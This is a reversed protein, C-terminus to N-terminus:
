RCSRGRGKPVDAVPDKPGQLVQGHLLDITARLDQHEGFRSTSRSSRPDRLGGPAARARRDFDANERDLRGVVVIRPTEANELESWVTQTGWRARRRLCRRLRDRRRRCPPRCTPGGAFDAFGPTDILNIKTGEHTFSALAMNITIHRKQEEPDPTWSAPATMSRAWALRRGSRMSFPVRRPEDQGIRRPRRRGRKQDENPEPSAM